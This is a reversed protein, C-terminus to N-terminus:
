ALDKICFIELVKEKIVRKIEKTLGGENLRKDVRILAEPKIYDWALILMSSIIHAVM